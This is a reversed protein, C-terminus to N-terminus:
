WKEYKKKQDQQHERLAHGKGRICRKGTGVVPPRRPQHFRRRRTHQFVAVEADAHAVNIGVEVVVAGHARELAEFDVAVDGFMETYRGCTGSPLFVAVVLIFVDAQFVLEQPFSFVPRGQREADHVRLAGSYVASLVEDGAFLDEGEVEGDAQAVASEALYRQRGAVFGDLDFQVRALPPGVRLEEATNFEMGRGLEGEHHLVIGNLIILLGLVRNLFFIKGIGDGGFDVHTHAVLRKVPGLKVQAILAAILEAGVQRQGEIQVALEDRDEVHGVPLLLLVPGIGQGFADATPKIKGAEAVDAHLDAGRFDPHLRCVDAIKVVHFRQANQQFHQVLDQRGVDLFNVDDQRFAADGHDSEARKPVVQAGKFRFNEANGVEQRKRLHLRADIGHGVCFFQMAAVEVVAEFGFKLGKQVIRGAEEFAPRAGGGPDAQLGPFARVEGNPGLCVGPVVNGRGHRRKGIGDAGVNNVVQLFVVGQGVQHELM